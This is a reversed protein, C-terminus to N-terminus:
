EKAVSQLTRATSIENVKDMIKGAGPFGIFRAWEGTGADGVLITSPHDEFNPTYVGLEQLVEDVTSKDGTLWLWGDAARHKASYAKLRAPTDRLPDVTLSVLMVDNGLRDALRVQVQGLIASLVPCITTCTTYVFDIVVIKDGIVDDRLNVSDGNQTLLSVDPIRIDASNSESETEMEMQMMQRHRAHPDSDQEAAFVQPAAMVLSLLLVAAIGTRWQLSAGNM